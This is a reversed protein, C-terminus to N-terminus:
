PLMPRGPLSLNRHRLKGRAGAESVDLDDGASGDDTEDDSSTDDLPNSFLKSLSMSRSNLPSEIISIIRQM